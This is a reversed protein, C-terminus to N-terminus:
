QDEAGVKGDGAERQTVLVQQFLMPAACNLIADRTTHIVIRPQGDEDDGIEVCEGVISSHAAGAEAPESPQGYRSGDADPLTQGNALIDCVMTREPDRM